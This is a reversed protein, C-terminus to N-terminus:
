VFLIRFKRDSSAFLDQGQSSGFTPSGSVGGPIQSMGFPDYSLRALEGPSLSTALQERAAALTGRLKQPAVRNTLEGFVEPPQNFWLYALLEGAQEPHELWPPQWFVSMVLNTQKSLEAAIARAATEGQEATEATITIILERANAFHQQYAKLGEVVELKSPLLDFIEVDLRLRMLGVVVPVALILWIWRGPHKLHKPGSSNM